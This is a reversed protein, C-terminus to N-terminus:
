RAQNVAYFLPFRLMIEDIYKRPVSAARPDHAQSKPAALAATFQKYTVV